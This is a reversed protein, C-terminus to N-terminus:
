HSISKCHLHFCPDKNVVVVFAPLFGQLHQDVFRCVHMADTHKFVTRMDNFVHVVGHWIHHQHIDVHRFHVADFAQLEDTLMGRMHQDEHLGNEFVIFFDKGGDTCASMTIKEFLSRRCLQDFADAVDVIKERGYNLAGDGLLFGIGGLALYQRHDGSLANVSVAFGARDLSRRWPAGHSVLGGSIAQNVETYAYSEHRGENWVTVRLTM